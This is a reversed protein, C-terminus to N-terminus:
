FPMGPTKGSETIKKLMNVVKKDSDGGFMNGFENGAPKPAKPKKLYNLYVIQVAGDLGQDLNNICLDAGTFDEDATYVSKTVCCSMGAAKAAKLGIESDEVVWCRTPDVKLTEAALHYVDPSPKKKKDMDGAFIPMKALREPGLLKRVITTVADVNSTSCVAVTMGNSFADDILRQVGPRLPVVGSEVLSSFKATKLLHLEQIFAKRDVEAVFKPWNQNKDFYHTMREKGGGIKLLEGYEEVGWEVGVVGKEKFAANFTVRHADRETEAIVGDCDFLLADFHRDAVTQVGAMQLKVGEGLRQSYTSFRVPAFGSVHQWALGCIYVIISFQTMMM